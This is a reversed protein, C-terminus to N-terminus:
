NCMALRTSGFIQVAPRVDRPQSHDVKVVQVARQCSACNHLWCAAEASVHPDPALGSAQQQETQKTLM